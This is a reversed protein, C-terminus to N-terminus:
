LRHSALCMPTADERQWSVRVFAGNLLQSEMGATAPCARGLWLLSVARQPERERAGPHYWAM